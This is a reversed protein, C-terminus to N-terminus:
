SSVLLLGKLMANRKKKRRKNYPLLIYGAMAFRKGVGVRSLKDRSIVRQDSDAPSADRSQLALAMCRLKRKRRGNYPAVIYSLAKVRSKKRGLHVLPAAPSVPVLSTVNETELPEDPDTSVGETEFPETPGTSDGEAGPPEAQGMSNRADAAKKELGALALELNRRYLEVDDRSKQLEVHLSEAVHASENHKQQLAEFSSRLESLQRELDVTERSHQTTMQDIEVQLGRSQEVLAATSQELKRREEASTMLRKVAAWSELGIAAQVSTGVSLELAEEGYRRLDAIATQLLPQQRVPFPAVCLIPLLPPIKIKPAIQQAYAERAEEATACFICPIGVSASFDRWKFEIDIEGSDWYAFPIGYALAAIAAHLSATLVFDASVLEDLFAEVALASREISPRLLADCGSMKLLEEDSKQSNFHPVLLTRGAFTRLTKPTYLAPLLLGPDGIPISEGLQLTSRSLPGRVCLITCEEKAEASMSHETRLGCGWLAVM